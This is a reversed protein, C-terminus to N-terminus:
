GLYIFYTFAALGLLLWGAAILLCAVGNRNWEMM